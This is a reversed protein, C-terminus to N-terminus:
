LGELAGTASTGAGRHGRAKQRRGDFHGREGKVDAGARDRMSEGREARLEKLRAVQEDTLLGKAEQMAGHRLARAEGALGHQARALTAVTKDDAGSEIAGVLSQRNDRMEARVTAMAERTAERIKEIETRQTDTLDLESMAAALPGGGAGPGHALSPVAAVAILGVVALTRLSRFM